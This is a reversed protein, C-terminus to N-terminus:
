LSRERGIITFKNVEDFLSKNTFDIEPPLKYATKASDEGISQFIVVHKSTQDEHGLPPPQTGFQWVEDFQAPIYAAIKSGATVIRRTQVVTTSGPPGKQESTLVHACLIVNKPNGPRAWLFKMSDIYWKLFSDEGNYYDYGRIEIMKNGSRTSKINKLMTLINQGKVDDITKIAAYSLGTITDGIVTEYPCENDKNFGDDQAAQVSEYPFYNIMETIKEGIEFVDNFTDWHIEKGPFHKQAIAPMKRDHDFIYAKPFSLAGVSKGSGSDGKFLAFLGRGVQAEDLTSHSM